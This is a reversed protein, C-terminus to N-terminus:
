HHIKPNNLGNFRFMMKYIKLKGQSLHQVFTFLTFDTVTYVTEVSLYFWFLVM